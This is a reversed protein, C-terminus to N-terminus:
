YNYRNDDNYPEYDYTGYDYTGSYNLGKTYNKNDYWLKFVAIVTLWASIYGIVQTQSTDKNELRAYITSYCWGKCFITLLASLMTGVMPISVLLLALVWWFRFYKMHIQKGLIDVYEVGTGEALAFQNVVPLWVLWANSYGLNKLARYHSIGYCIYYVIGAVVFILMFVIIAIFVIAYFDDNYYAHM